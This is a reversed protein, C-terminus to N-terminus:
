LPSDGTHVKPTHLFEKRNAKIKFLARTMSLMLVPLHFVAKITHITFYTRPVSILLSLLYAGFLLMWWGYAPYLMPIHLMLETLTLLVILTFLLLYLSRPLLLTQFLRYWYMKRNKSGKLDDDLFRKLTNVQAELWRTRQKEFVVKSSVKEDYVWADEIFEVTINDKLLQMGIEGDEGPNDLIGPVRFIERFKNFYFAMGSGILASSLGLARQGHRFINNNIEESIADLIAVANNKNKATRHCQVAQFGSQFAHNVKHLCGPGMVNDADLVMVVDFRDAAITEMATHISKAKTSIEFQVEIVEVPLARLRDITEPQLHDALVFVSFCDKPYDHRMAKEATDVIVNDEKYSPILVAIKKTEPHKSYAPARRLRGAISIFLLYVVSIVLYMFVVLCLSHLVAAIM